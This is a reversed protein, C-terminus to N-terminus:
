GAMRFQLSFQLRERAAAPGDPGPLGFPRAIDLEFEVQVDIAGDSSRPLLRADVVLPISEGLFHFSGAIRTAQEQDWQLNIAQEDFAFSASAYRRVKLYQKLVKADLEKMGMTLTNLAAAFEGSLRGDRYALEGSLQRVEGAYRELPSPFNFQLLPQGERVPVPRSWKEPFAGSRNSPYPRADTVQKKQIQLGLAEFELVPTDDPLPFLADGGQVNALRERVICALQEAAEELLKEKEALSGALPRGFNDFVPHICDFQSFLALSLFASDGKAYPHVDLYFRRGTPFFGASPEYRAGLSKELAAIFDSQWDEVPAEGQWPTWKLPFGISQRGQRKVLLPGATAALPAVPRSRATRIFNEVASWETVKGGFLTRGESTQFLLAPTATICAPAGKAADQVRFSIQNERAFSQLQQKLGESLAEDCPQTFLVLREGKRQQAIWGGAQYLSGMVLAWNLDGNCFAVMIFDDRLSAQMATFYGKTNGGWYILGDKNIHFLLSRYGFQRALGARATEPKLFRNDTGRAARIIHEVFRAYDAPTTWLGTAALEPYRRYGGPLPAGTTDHGLAVTAEQADSLETAYFSNEMGLPALVREAMIEALPKGHYKELILQLLVANAYQPSQKLMRNGRIALGGPFDDNGSELLAELPPWNEGAAYGSPKMPGGLNKRRLILDRITVKRLKLWRKDKLKPLYQHVPGDLSIEGAGALRLIEFLVPAESMAGAPFPTAYGVEKKGSVRLLGAALSDQRNGYILYTSFGPVGEEVMKEKLSLAKGDQEFRYHELLQGFAPTLIFSCFFFLLSRQM